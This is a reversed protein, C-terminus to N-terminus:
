SHLTLRSSHHVKDIAYQHWRCSDAAQISQSLSEIKVFGRRSIGGEGILINFPQQLQSCCFSANKDVEGEKMDEARGIGAKLVLIPHQYGTRVETM